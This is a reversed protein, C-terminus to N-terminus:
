LPFTLLPAAELLILDEKEPFLRLALSLLQVRSRKGSLTMRAKLAAQEAELLRSEEVHSADIAQQLHAALDKAGSLKPRKFASENAIEPEKTLQRENSASGSGSASASPRPLSTTQSLVADPAPIPVIAKAKEADVPSCWPGTIRELSDESTSLTKADPVAAAPPPPPPLPPVAASESVPPSASVPLETIEPMPRSQPERLRKLRQARLRIVEARQALMQRTETTPEMRLSHPLEGRTLWGRGRRRVTDWSVGLESAKKRGELEKAEFAFGIAECVGLVLGNETDNSM